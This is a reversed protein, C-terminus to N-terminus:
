ALSLVHSITFNSFLFFCNVDSAVRGVARNQTLWAQNRSPNQLNEQMSLHWGCDCINWPGRVSVQVNLLRNDHNKCNEQFIPIKVKLLGKKSPPRGLLEFAWKREFCLKTLAIIKNVRWFDARTETFIRSSECTHARSHTWFYLRSSYWVVHKRYEDRRIKKWVPITRSLSM